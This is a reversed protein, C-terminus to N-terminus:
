ENIIRNFKDLRQKNLIMSNLINEIKKEPKHSFTVDEKYYSWYYNDRLFILQKISANHLNNLIGDEIKKDILLRSYDDLGTFKQTVEVIETIESMKESLLKLSEELEEIENEM